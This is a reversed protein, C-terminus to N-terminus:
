DERVVRADGYGRAAAADRAQSAQNKTSYPGMRVRWVSGAPVTHGGLSRSLATARAQSSFAAVQVYFGGTGPAGSLTPKKGPMKATQPEPPIRVLPPRLQTRPPEEGWARGVTLRQRLGALLSPPTDLRPVGPQGARLAALDSPSATVARIRVAERGAIGLTRAAGQSLDILLNSQHPGRDNIQVLITRGTDLATVEAYSGLPLTRHAATFGKPDFPVGSATRAGALEDGYWSAFGVEDYRSEGRGSTASPGDSSPPGADAEDASLPAPRGKPQPADQPVIRPYTQPYGGQLAGGAVLSPSRPGGDSEWSGACGLLVM